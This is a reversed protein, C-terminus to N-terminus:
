LDNQMNRKGPAYLLAKKKQEELERALRENALAAEALKCEMAQFQTTLRRKDEESTITLINIHSQAM